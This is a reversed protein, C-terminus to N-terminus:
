KEACGKALGKMSLAIRKRLLDVELVRVTVNQRARIVDTPSRVFEDSMQSIHVLGDQHVGVDVFAGFATVNTVIGPLLMGAKLDEIKEVGAAFAFPEFVARPDRGPRSIEEMIDSLNAANSYMSPDIKKQLEENKMLDHVSVGLDEAMKEVVPYSEPHVATNDLPNIGGRIRLFGAAQEFAKPGLRPVKRLDQRSHFLGHENRYNVVAEALKPGLGSVYTLLEKSAANVDVGVLNVCAMAVDDLARRLASQDVDHQYQGIGLAMPEIKILEALPDMLRRGISVAGRVTADERPFEKRAVESTSYVSAGSENVMVVAAKKLNQLFAATERGATGNGVAIVEVHFRDCIDQVRKGAEEKRNHPEHPYIVDKKILRGLSDLVVLKCGTRFGPDVALVCKQGLPPQLLIQRLNDAFVAIAKEEARSRAAALTENEMAPGLLRSYSEIAALIVQQSAPGAGRLFLEQLIAKAEEEPPAVHLGLVGAAAARQMALLRHSAIGSIPESLDLLDRFKATDEGAEAYQQKAGSENKQLTNRGRAAIAQSRLIGDSWFLTRMRSRAEPDESIWEAMIDRAGALAEEISAVKSDANVFARAEKEPDLCGGDEQSFIMRALPELGRERARTARTRRRPRFPLYIDELESLTEVVSLKESLVPTLLDNKALSHMIAERREDLQRLRSLRDRIKAISVEDQNGTAEKRYRAIFPLTAGSDLLEAVARVQLVSLNTEHAIKKIHPDLMDDEPLIAYILIVSTQVRHIGFPLYFITISICFAPWISQGMM